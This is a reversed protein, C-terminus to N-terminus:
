LSGPTFRSSIITVSPHARAPVFTSSVLKIREAAVAYSPIFTSKRQKDSPFALEARHKGIKNILLERSLLLTARNFNTPADEIKQYLKNLTNDQYFSKFKILDHIAKEQAEWILKYTEEIPADIINYQKQLEELKKKLVDNSIGAFKSCVASASIDYPIFSLIHMLIEDSLDSMPSQGDALAIEALLLKATPEVNPHIIQGIWSIIQNAKQVLSPIIQNIFHIPYRM